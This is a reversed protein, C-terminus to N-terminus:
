GEEQQDAFGGRVFQCILQLFEVGLHQLGRQGFLILFLKTSEKARFVEFGLIERSLYSVLQTLIIQRDYWVSPPYLVAFYKLLQANFGVIVTCNNAGLQVLADNGHRGGVSSWCLLPQSGGALPNNLYGSNSTKRSTM